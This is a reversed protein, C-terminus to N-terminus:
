FVNTNRISITIKLLSIDLYMNRYKLYMNWCVSIDANKLVESVKTDEVSIDKNVSLINKTNYISELQFIHSDSNFNCFM